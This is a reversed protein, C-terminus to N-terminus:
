ACRDTRPMMRSWPRESPAGRVGVRASDSRMSCLLRPCTVQAEALAARWRGQYENKREESVPQENVRDPNLQVAHRLEQEQLPDFRSGFLARILFHRTLISQINIRPDQTGSVLYNRLKDPTKSAWAFLLNDTEHRLSENM